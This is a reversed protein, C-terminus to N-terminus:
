PSLTGLCGATIAVYGSKPIGFATGNKVQAASANRYRCVAMGLDQIDRQSDLSAVKVVVM